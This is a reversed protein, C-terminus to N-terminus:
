AGEDTSASKKTKKSRRPMLGIVPGIKEIGDLSRDVYAGSALAADFVRAQEPSFKEREEQSIEHSLGPIGAGNGVFKYQTM